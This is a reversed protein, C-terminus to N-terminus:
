VLAVIWALVTRITLRIGAKAAVLVLSQGISKRLTLIVFTDGLTGSSPEVIKLRHVTVM